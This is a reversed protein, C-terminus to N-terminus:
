RDKELCSGVALGVLSRRMLRRAECDQRLQRYAENWFIIDRTYGPVTYVRVVHTEHMLTLLLITGTRM